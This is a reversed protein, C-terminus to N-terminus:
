LSFLTWHHSDTERTPIIEPTVTSTLFRKPSLNAVGSLLPPDMECRLRLNLENIGAVCLSGLKGMKSLLGGIKLIGKEGLSELHFIKERNNKIIVFQLSETFRSGRM